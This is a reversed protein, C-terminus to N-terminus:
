QNLLNYYFEAEKKPDESTTISTGVVIGEPKIKLISDVNNRKIKASIYIPLDTNGHVMEWDDLFLLEDQEDHPRHFILANVGLNKAELASQGVSKADLLDLMVKTGFTHATTCASHIVTNNTGAMVSIWDAGAESFVSAMMKGRDLIKTDALITKEPFTEKFKKISEIGYKQVLVTGLEMSDCFDSVDKAIAIAKELDILDFSIQLKM